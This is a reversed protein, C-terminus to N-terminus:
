FKKNIIIKRHAYNNNKMILRNPIIECYTVSKEM